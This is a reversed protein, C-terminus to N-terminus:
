KQLSTKWHCAHVLSERVNLLVTLVARSRQFEKGNQPHFGDFYTRTLLILSKNIVVNLLEGSGAFNQFDLYTKDTIRAM